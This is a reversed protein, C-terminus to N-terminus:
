YYTIKLSDSFKLFFGNGFRQKNDYDYSIKCTSKMVKNALKIPVRLHGGCLVENERKTQVISNKNKLENINQTLNNESKIINQNLTHNNINSEYSPLTQNSKGQIM